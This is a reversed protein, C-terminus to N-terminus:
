FGDSLLLKMIVTMPEFIHVTYLTEMGYNYVIGFKREAYRM